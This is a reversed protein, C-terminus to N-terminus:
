SDLGDCLYGRCISEIFHLDLFEIKADTLVFGSLKDSSEKYQHTNSDLEIM